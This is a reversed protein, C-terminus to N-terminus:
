QLKKKLLNILAATNLSEDDSLLEELKDSLINVDKEMVDSVIVQTTIPKDNNQTIHLRMISNDENKHMEVYDDLQFLMDQITKFFHPKDVDKIETLPKNLAVYSVAEIWSKKNDYKGVLRSHFTKVNLPMLNTKVRSYRDSIKQHYEAFDGDLHTAALINKEVSLVLENYCNRLDRIANQIVEVFSEIAEPNQSLTIEKFGLEEPLTEFFTKEPDTANAIVDRFKRANVSIDKTRKAYNNLKKYFTLFPRITEIFSGTTLETSSLNIAERYKDFFGRKIGDVDFAKVSYSSPSRLILDIVEKNIYPVYQGETYLAFDDKKVILFTPLWCDIFGQKLKYPSKTLIAVLESLKRQKEISSKLFDCCANWLPGFSEETPASLVGNCHIGTNKLLTLYLSKEPPFKDKDMGCDEENSHDLIASLYLQRAVSMNGTPKQKNILEFRYVPTGSYITDCVISILKTLDKQSHMSDLKCGNFYWDVRTTFMNDIVVRNLLEKEHAIQNGIEKLAVKDNEDAVYYDRVWELKDIEFLHEVIEETNKFLCYVIAQGQINSVKQVLTEIEGKPAFLLNIYGDIDGTPVKDIIDSTLLYQFYRPTGTRFYHANALAIKFDFYNNLKEAVEDPRKCERAAEYLGAEIDVDTGEFLIYKSKYKAYRLIQAKELKDVIISPNDIGMSISSYEELFQKDIVTASSAFISLLGVAKIIKISSDIFGSSENLGEAREIAIKIASWNASDENIEQLRSYFSYTIYDYVEALNYLYNEQAEFTAISGEGTSELFTFLTRENQGYRQNAMTLVYASMVDMPYLSVAVEPKLSNSAFKSKVALRYAIDVNATATKTVKESLRTSTLNLLQEIPENFVIDFIRGKVKTWEQRQTEKLGKAYANFSQHLTALFIVNKNSDNVFECFKQLFYMEKEPSNKAAHELIKGFEDVVVVLFKGKNHVKNYYSEFAALCNVNDSKLADSLVSSMSAYDGVINLFSFKHYNDFQGHNNLLVENGSTNGLLCNELALVFSSKGTGYSGILCFSHIGASYQNVIKGVAQRANATVIYDPTKGFDRSINVSTSFSM